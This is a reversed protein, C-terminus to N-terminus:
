KLEAITEEDLAEEAVYMNLIKGNFLFGEEAKLGIAGVYFYDRNYPYIQRYLTKRNEEIGNVYLIVDYESEDINEIVAAIQIKEGVKCKTKSYLLLRTTKDAAYISYNVRGLNDIGLINHYGRRCAISMNGKEPLKDIIVDAVISFEKMEANFKNLKIWAAADQGNFVVGDASEVTNKVERLWYGKQTFKGDKIVCLPDASLTASILALTLLILKKM